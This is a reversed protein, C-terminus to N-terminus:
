AEYSKSINEVELTTWEFAEKLNNFSIGKFKLIRKELEFSKFSIDSYAVIANVVLLGFLDTLPTLEHLNVSYSYLRHSILGYPKKIDIHKLILDLIQMFEEEGVIVGEFVETILINNCFYFNGFSLSYTFNIESALPSNKVTM